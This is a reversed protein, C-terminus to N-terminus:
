VKFVSFLLIQLYYGKIREFDIMKRYLITSGLM